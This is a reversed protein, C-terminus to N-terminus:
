QKSRRNKRPAAANEGALRATIWAAWDDPNSKFAARTAEAWFRDRLQSDPLARDALPALRAAAALFGALSAPASAQLKTLVAEQVAIPAAPTSVGIALREDSVSAGFAIDSLEPAGPMYFIARAAKASTRAANARVEHPGAVVLAAGRMDVAKWRRLTLRVGPQLATFEPSPLPDYGAVGAGADLLTQALGALDAGASLFVASRGAMDLFAPALPFLNRL